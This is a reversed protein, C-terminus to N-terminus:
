KKVRDFAWKAKDQLGLAQYAKGLYLFAEPFEFDKKVLRFLFNVAMDHRGRLFNIKGTLFMLENENYDEFRQKFGDILDLAEKYEQNSIHNDISDVLKLYLMRKGIDKIAEVNSEEQLLQREQEKQREASELQDKYKKIVDKSYPTNCLPCTDSNSFWELLCDSHIMHGNPCQDYLSDIEMHCIICKPM